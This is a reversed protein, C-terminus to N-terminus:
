EGVVKEIQNSIFILNVYGFIYDMKAYFTLFRKPKQSVGSPYRRLSGRVGLRSPSRAKPFRLKAGKASASL